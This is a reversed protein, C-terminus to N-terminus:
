KRVNKERLHHKIKAYRKVYITNAEKLIKLEKCIVSYYEPTM